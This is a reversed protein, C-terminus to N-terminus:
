CSWEREEANVSANPVMKPQVTLEVLGKSVALVFAKDERILVLSGLSIARPAQEDVSM